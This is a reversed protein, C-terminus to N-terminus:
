TAYTSRGEFRISWKSAPKSPGRRYSVCRLITINLAKM